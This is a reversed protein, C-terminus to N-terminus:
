NLPCFMPNRIGFRLNSEQLPVGSVLFVKVLNPPKLVTFGCRPVSSRRIAHDTGFLSAPRRINRPRFHRFLVCLLAQGVYTAWPLRSSLARVLPLYRDDVSACWQPCVKLAFASTGLGTCSPLGGSLGFPLIGSLGVATRLSLSMASAVCHAFLCDRTWVPRRSFPRRAPRSEGGETQMEPYGLRYPM